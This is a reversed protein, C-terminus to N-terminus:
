KVARLKNQQKAAERRQKLSAAVKEAAEQLDADVKIDYREFVEDTKHGTIAKATTRDVGAQVLNRVASRRLDHFIFGRYTGDKEFHSVIEEGNLKTKIAAKICANRWSRIFSGIPKGEEPKGNPYSLFVLDNEGAKPHQRRLKEFMEPLGDILPITRGTKNKTDQPLLRIVNDALDVRGWKLNLIEGLRMGTYFGLQLLPRVYEPLANSLKDYDQPELFGARPQEPEALLKITPVHQPQLKEDEQALKFMRRLAALSRNITGPEAGERTRQAKFEKVRATTIASVKCGTDGDKEWGFFADLHKLGCVYEEGTEANKLLSRNKGERYSDLYLKRLGAYRLRTPDSGVAIIGQNANGRLKDLATRAATLNTWNKEDKPDGGKLEGSIKSGDAGRLSRRVLRGNADYVQGTWFRTVGPRPPILCGSGRERRDIKTSFNTAM